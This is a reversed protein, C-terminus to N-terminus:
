EQGTAKPITRSVGHTRLSRRVHVRETLVDHTQCKRGQVVTQSPRNTKGGRPVTNKASLSKKPNRQTGPSTSVRLRRYWRSANPGDLGPGHVKRFLRNKQSVTDSGESGGFVKEEISFLILFFETSRSSELVFFFVWIREVPKEKDAGREDVQIYFQMRLM